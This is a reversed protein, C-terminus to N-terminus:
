DRRPDLAPIANRTDYDRIAGRCAESLRATNRRFCQRIEPGDPSLGVCYRFYDGACNARLGPDSRQAAAPTAAVLAAFGVTMAFGALPRSASPRPIPDADPM